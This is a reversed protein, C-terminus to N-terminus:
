AALFGSVAPPGRRPTRRRVGTPRPRAPEPFSRRGARAPAVPLPLLVLVRVLPTLWVLLSWVAAEGRALLVATALLAVLLVGIVTRKLPGPSSTFEDDVRLRVALGDAATVTVSSTLLDVDPLQDDTTRALETGDRSVVLRANGPGALDSVDPAAPDAPDPPAGQYSPLGRSTGTIAYTCPGTGLPDDLLVRGLAGVQVRGDRATVVLGTATALPWEPQVTAVVVGGAAAAQRATDCTFRVELGLPRYATLNLLTPEPRGPERPWSVTPENVLVPLFPLMLACLVAVLGALAAPLAARSWRSPAPTSRPSSAPGDDRVTEPASTVARDDEPM